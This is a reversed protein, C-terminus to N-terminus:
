FMRVYSRLNNKKQENIQPILLGAPTENYKFAKGEKKTLSIYVCVKAINWPLHQRLQLAVRSCAQQM